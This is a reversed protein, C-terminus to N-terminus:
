EGNNVMMMMMMKLTMIIVDITMIQFIHMKKLVIISMILNEVESLAIRTESQNM